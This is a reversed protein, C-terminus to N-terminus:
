LFIMKCICVAAIIGILDALIGTLVAHRMKKIGIAGFYVALVYFTTESSGVIVASLKAAYSEVGNTNVIDSFIGLTASGSLSRTVMLILSDAPIKLAELPTQLLGALWEIAGSARLMAVATMIAVLYPIIRVAVNFGEKAGDTFSAYCDVKKIMGFVLIISILAPIILISITSLIETM